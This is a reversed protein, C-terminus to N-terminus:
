TTDKGNYFNNRNYGFVSAADATAAYIREVMDVDLRAVAKRNVDPDIRQSLEGYPCQIYDGIALSNEATREAGFKKVKLRICGDLPPRVGLQEFLRMALKEPTAAMDEFKVVLADHSKQCTSMLASVDNYWRIARAEEMGGRILGEIMPLPHRTLIIHTTPTFRQEILTNFVMHYDMVKLTIATADPKAAWQSDPIHRRVHAEAIESLGPVRSWDIYQGVRRLAKRLVHQSGFVSQHWELGPWLIDPSSAIMNWVISSGGRGFCNLVVGRLQKRDHAKTASVSSMKEDSM